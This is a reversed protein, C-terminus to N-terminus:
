AASTAATMHAFTPAAALPSKVRCADEGADYLGKTVTPAAPLAPVRGAAGTPFQTPLPPTPLQDGRADASEEASDTAAAAAGIQMNRGSGHDLPGIAAEFGYAVTISSSGGVHQLRLSITTAAGASLEAVQIEGCVHPAAGPGVVAEQLVTTYTTTESGRSSRRGSGTVPSRKASISSYSTSALVTVKCCGVKARAGAALTVARKKVAASAAPLVHESAVRWKIAHAGVPITVNRDVASTPGNAATSATLKALNRLQTGPPDPATGGLSMPIAKLPIGAAALAAAAGKSGGGVIQFKAATAPALFRKGVTWLARFILPAHLVIVKHACDPFFHQTPNPGLPHTDVEQMLKLMSQTLVRDDNAMDLVTTHHHQHQHQHHQQHQQTASAAATSHAAHDPQSSVLKSPPIYSADKLHELRLMNQYHLLRLQAVPISSIDAPWVMYHVVRGAADMGTTASPALSDFEARHPLPPSTRDILRDAGIEVRWHCALNLMTATREARDAYASFGAMAYGRVFRRLMPETAVARFEPRILSAVQEVLAQEDAPGVQKHKQNSKQKLKRRQTSTKNSSSPGKQWAQFSEADHFPVWELQTDAM